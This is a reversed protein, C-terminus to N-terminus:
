EDDKGSSKEGQFQDDKDRFLVNFTTLSGYCKTIYGQLEVKEADALKPNQNLKQELVRLRDRVMVVKHFLADVSLEKGQLEANAPKLVLSAGQWKGALAVEAGGREEDMAERILTKLEERTMELEGVPGDPLRERTSKLVPAVARPPARRAEGPRTTLPILRDRASATEGKANPAGSRPIYSVCMPATCPFTGRDPRLRCTGALLGRETAQPRYIVCTGCHPGFTCIHGIETSDAFCDDVDPCNEKPAAPRTSVTEASV